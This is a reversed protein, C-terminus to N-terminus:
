ECRFLSRHPTILRCQYRETGVPVAQGLRREACAEQAVAAVAQPRASEGHCVWVEGLRLQANTSDVFPAEACGALLLCPLLLRPLTRITM